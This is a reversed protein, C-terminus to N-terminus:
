AYGIFWYYYSTVSSGTYNSVSVYLISSTFEYSVHLFDSFYSSWQQAAASKFRSLSNQWLYIFPTFPLSTTITHTYTTAVGNALTFDKKGMQTIKLSPISSSLVLDKKEATLVSVGPKSIKFGYDGAM